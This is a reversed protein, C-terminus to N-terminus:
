CFRTPTAQGQTVPQAGAPRATSLRELDKPKRQLKSQTWYWVEHDHAEGAAQLGSVYEDVSAASLSAQLFVNMKHGIVDVSSTVWDYTICGMPIALM